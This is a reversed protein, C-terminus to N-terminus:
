KRSIKLGPVLMPTRRRYAAYEDGYEVLLKREELVAGIVIYLSIGLNLALLNWTMVPMLWIFLLGATYIPHRVLRYLGTVVLKADEEGECRILQCIGLFKMWGTSVISALLVLTSFGQGLLSIVVWPMPIRYLPEDVLAVPLILIPLFTIVAVVNYVLRYIRNAKEGFRSTLTRKFGISAMWSHLGGYILVAVLIIWFSATM